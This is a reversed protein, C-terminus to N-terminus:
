LPQGLFLPREIRTLMWDGDAELAPGKRNTYGNVIMMLPPSKTTRRVTHLASGPLGSTVIQGRLAAFGDAALSHAPELQSESPPQVKSTGGTDARDM